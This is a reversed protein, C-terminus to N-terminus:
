TQSRSASGPLSARTSLASRPVDGLLAGFDADATRADNLVGGPGDAAHLDDVDAEGLGFSPTDPHRM